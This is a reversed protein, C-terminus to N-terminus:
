FGVVVSRVPVYESGSGMEIVPVVTACGIPFAGSLRVCVEDSNPHKMTEPPVPDAGGGGGGGGTPWTGTMVDNEAVGGLKLLPAPGTLNVHTICPAVVTLMLPM